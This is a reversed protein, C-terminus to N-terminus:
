RIIGSTVCEIIWVSLVLLTLLTKPPYSKGTKNQLWTGVSDTIARVPPGALEAFPKLWVFHWHDYLVKVLIMVVLCDMVMFALQIFSLLLYSFVSM